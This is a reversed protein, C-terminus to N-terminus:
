GALHELGVSRRLAVLQTRVVLRGAGPRAPRDLPDCAGASALFAGAPQGGDVALGVLGVLGLASLKSLLALGLLSGTLVLSHQPRWWPVSRAPLLRSSPALWLAVTQWLVLAALANIANDNSAAASIFIFQPIFALFAAGWLAARRDLLLVLTQYVAWVTVAGLFVSFFRALHLALVAGHWPWGDDPHHILYNRNATADPQGIAAHPNVRAYLALFDGQDIWSTLAAAALYYGPAQVGQQRWLATTAPESIPLGRGTGSAPYFRLALNRRADRFAARDRQVARGTGSLRLDAAVGAPYPAPSRAQDNSM